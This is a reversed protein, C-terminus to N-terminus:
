LLFVNSSSAVNAGSVGEAKRATHRRGDIDQYPRAEATLMVLLKENVDQTVRGGGDGNSAISMRLELDFKVDSARLKGVCGLLTHFQIIPDPM